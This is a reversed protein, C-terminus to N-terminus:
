QGQGAAQDLSLFCIARITNGSFFIDIRPEDSIEIGHCRGCGRVAGSRLNALLRDCARQGTAAMAAAEGPARAPLRKQGRSSAGFLLGPWLFRPHADQEFIVKEVAEPGPREGVNRIATRVKALERSDARFDPVATRVGEGVGPDLRPVAGDGRRFRRCLASVLLAGPFEVQSGAGEIRGGIMRDIARRDIRSQQRSEVLLRPREVRAKRQVIRWDPLWVM